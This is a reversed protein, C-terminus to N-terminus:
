GSKKSFRVSLSGLPPLATGVYPTCTFWKFKGPVLLYVGPAIEPTNIAVTMTNKRTDRTIKRAVEEKPLNNILVRSTPMMMVKGDVTKVRVRTANPEVSLVANSAAVSMNASMRM